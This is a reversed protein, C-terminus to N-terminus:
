PCLRAMLRPFRRALRDRWPAAASLWDLPTSAAVPNLVNDLAWATALNSSLMPREGDLSAIALAPLSPAGTGLAVVVDGDGACRLTDLISRTDRAYIPHGQAAAPVEAVSAVEFGRRAWWDVASRTLSQPYPTVVAMRRAGLATLADEVANAAAVLPLTRGGHDLSRGPAQDPSTLYSSGTCAFVAADLPAGALPAMWHAMQEAYRILRRDMQPDPAHMRTVVLHVDTGVLVSLEAEATPNEAPTMLAVVGAEGLDPRLPPQSLSSAVPM